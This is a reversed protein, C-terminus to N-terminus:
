SQAPDLQSQGQHTNSAGRVKCYEDIPILRKVAVDRIHSRRFLIKGSVPSTPLHPCTLVVGVCEKSDSIEQVGEGQWFGQIGGGFFGMEECLNFVEDSDPVTLAALVNWSLSSSIIGLLNCGQPREGTHCHSSVAGVLAHAQCRVTQHPPCFGQCVSPKGSCSM